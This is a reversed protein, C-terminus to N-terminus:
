TPVAAASAEDAATKLRVAPTGSHVDDSMIGVERVPRGEQDPGSMSSKQNEPIWLHVRRSTCADCANIWQGAPVAPAKTMYLQRPRRIHNRAVIVFLDASTDRPHLMWPPFM